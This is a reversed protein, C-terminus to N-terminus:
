RAETFAVRTDKRLLIVLAWIALPIGLIFCPTLLPILALAAGTLCFTYANGRLMQISATFITLMSASSTILWIANLPDSFTAFQLKLMAPQEHHHLWLAAIWPLALLTSMHMTLFLLGSAPWHLQEVRMRRNAFKGVRLQECAEIVERQRLRFFALFAFPLTFPFGPAAFPVMSLACATVSLPRQKGHLMALAGFFSIPFSVLLYFLFLCFPILLDTYDPPDILGDPSAFFDFRSYFLTGLTWAFLAMGISSGVAISLAPLRLRLLIQSRRLEKEDTSTIAPASEALKGPSAYPNENTSM